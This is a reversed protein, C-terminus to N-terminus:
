KTESGEDPQFNYSITVQINHYMSQLQNNIEEKVAYKLAKYSPKNGEKKIKDLSKVKKKWLTNLITINKGHRPKNKITSELGYTFYKDVSSLGQTADKVSELAGSLLDDMIVVNGYADLTAIPMEYILQRLAKNQKSKNYGFMKEHLSSLALLRFCDELLEKDNVGLYVYNYIAYKSMEFFNNENLLTYLNDVTNQREEQNIDISNTGNLSDQWTSFNELVRTKTQKAQKTKLSFSANLFKIDSSTGTAGEKAVLSVPVSKDKTGTERGQALTLSDYLISYTTVEHLKPFWNNRFSQLSLGINQVEPMEVAGEQVGYKKIAGSLEKNMNEVLQKWENIKNEDFYGTAIIKNVTTTIINCIKQLDEQSKRGVKLEKSSELIATIDALKVIGHYWDVFKEKTDVVADGQLNFELNLKNFFLQQKKQIWNNLYISDSEFAAKAQAGLNKIKSNIVAMSKEFWDAHNHLYIGDQYFVKNNKDIDELIRDFIINIEELKQKNKVKRKTREQRKEYYTKGQREQINVKEWQKKERKRAM